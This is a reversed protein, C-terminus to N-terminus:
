TAGEVVVGLVGVVATDDDDNDDEGDDQTCGVSAMPTAVDSAVAASSFLFAKSSRARKMVAATTSQEPVLM